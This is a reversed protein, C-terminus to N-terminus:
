TNNTATKALKLADDIRGHELLTLAGESMENEVKERRSGEIEKLLPTFIEWRSSLDDYFDGLQSESVINSMGDLTFQAIREAEHEEIDNVELANIIIDIIKKYIIDKDEGTLAM